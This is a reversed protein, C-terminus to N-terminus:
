RGSAVLPATAFYDEGFYAAAIAVDRSNEKHWWM